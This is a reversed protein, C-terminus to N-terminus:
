RRKQRFSFEKMKEDFSDKTDDVKEVRDDQYQFLVPEGLVASAIDRLSEKSFLIKEKDDNRLMVISERTGDPLYLSNVGVEMAPDILQRVVRRLKLPQEFILLEGFTQQMEAVLPELSELIHANKKKTVLILHNATKIARQLSLDELPPYKRLRDLLWKSFDIDFRTIEGRDLRDQCNSCLMDSEIDFICVPLKM